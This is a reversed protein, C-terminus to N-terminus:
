GLALALYFLGVSATLLFWVTSLNLAKNEYCDNTYSAPGYNNKHKDGRWFLTIILFKLSYFSVSYFVTIFGVSLLFTTYALNTGELLTIAINLMSLIVAGMFVPELYGHWALKNVDHMRRILLSGLPFLPLILTLYFVTEAILVFNEIENLSLGADNAQRLFSSSLVYSCCLEIIVAFITNILLFSWLEFCSSRGRLVLTKKWGYLWLKMYTKLCPEPTQVLADITQTEIPTVTQKATNESLTSRTKKLNPQAAAKKTRSRSSAKKQPAAAADTIEDKVATKPNM